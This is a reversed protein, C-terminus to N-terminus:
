LSLFGVKGFVKELEVESGLWPANKSLVRGPQRPGKGLAQEWGLNKLM